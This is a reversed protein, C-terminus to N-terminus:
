DYEAIRGKATAKLKLNNLSHTKMNMQTDGSKNLTFIVNKKTSLPTLYKIM